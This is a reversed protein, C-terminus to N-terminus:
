LKDGTSRTRSMDVCIAHPAAVGARRPGGCSSRLRRRSELETLSVHRSFQFYVARAVRPRIVLKTKKSVDGGLVSFEADTSPAFSRDSLQWHRVRQWPVAVTGHFTRLTFGCRRSVRRLRAPAARPTEMTRATALSCSANM